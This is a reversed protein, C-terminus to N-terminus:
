ASTPIRLLKTYCVNYSTIRIRKASNDLKDAVEIAIEKYPYTVNASSIEGAFQQTVQSKFEDINGSDISNLQYSFNIDLQKALQNHFYPSKSRSINKGFLRCQM